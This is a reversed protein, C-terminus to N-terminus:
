NEEQVWAQFSPKRGGFCEQRGFRRSEEREKGRCTLNMALAEQSHEWLIKLIQERRETLVAMSQAVVLALQGRKGELL